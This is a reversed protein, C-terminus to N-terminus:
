CRDGVKPDLVYFPEKVISRDIEFQALREM